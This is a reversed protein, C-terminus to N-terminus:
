GDPTPDVPVALELSRQPDEPPLPLDLVGVAHIGHRAAKRALKGDDTYLTQVGNVMAIALIQRDYKVKVKREDGDLALTGSLEGDTILAVEIAARQDFDEFRFGYTSNLEQLVAPIAAAGVAVLAEALAPTPILIPIKGKHLTDILLRIREEAREVPADTAPDIPPPASPHLLLMLFTADIAIV